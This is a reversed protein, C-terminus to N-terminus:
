AALSGLRLFLSQLLLAENPNRPLAVTTETILSVAEVAARVTPDGPPVTGASARVVQGGYVRALAGLGARLADTRWRREV